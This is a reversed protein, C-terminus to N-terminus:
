ERFETIPRFGSKLMSDREEQTLEDLAMCDRQDQTLQGLAKLRADESFEPTPGEALHTWKPAGNPMNDGDFGPEFRWVAGADTMGLLKGQFDVLSVFRFTM